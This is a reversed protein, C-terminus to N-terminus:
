TRGTHLSGTEGGVGTLGFRVCYYSEEPIAKFFTQADSVLM